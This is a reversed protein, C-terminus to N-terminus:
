QHAHKSNPSLFQKLNMALCPMVCFTVEQEIALIDGSKAPRVLAQFIQPVASSTLCKM